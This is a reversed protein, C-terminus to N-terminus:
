FIQNSWINAHIIILYTPKKMTPGLLYTSVGGPLPIYELMCGDLVMYCKRM